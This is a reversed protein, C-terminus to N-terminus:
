QRADEIMGEGKWIITINYSDGRMAKILSKITKEASEKAQDILSPYDAINDRAKSIAEKQSNLFGKYTKDPQTLSIGTYEFKQIKGEDSFRLSLKPTDLTVSINNGSVSAKVNSLDVTFVGKTDWVYLSAYSCSSFDDVKDDNNTDKGGVTYVDGIRLDASLVELLGISQIDAVLDVVVDPNDTKDDILEQIREHAKSLASTSGKALGVAKGIEDVLKNSASSVTVITPLEFFCIFSILAVFIVVVISSFPIKKPLVIKNIIKEM